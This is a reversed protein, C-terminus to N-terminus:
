AKMSQLADEFPEHIIADILGIRSAKEADVPEGTLLMELAAAEGVLRSLRQTGGWPTIFGRNVGPHCFTANPAAIRRDCALALDLGGGFCLGNIAAVTVKDLSVVSEILSRGLEAFDNASGEDLMANILRIDAGSSFVNDTGTIMVHSVDNAVSVKGLESRLCDIMERSLRNREDARNMRIIVLSGRKETDVFNSM